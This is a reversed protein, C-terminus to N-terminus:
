ILLDDIPGADRKYLLTDQILVTGLEGHVKLLLEDDKEPLSTLNCQIDSIDFNDSLSVTNLESSQVGEITTEKRRLEISFKLRRVLNKHLVLRCHLTKGDLGINNIKLYLPFLIQANVALNMSRLKLWKHGIDNIGNVIGYSKLEEEIDGVIKIDHRLPMDAKVYCTIPPFKLCEPPGIIYDSEEMFTYQHGKRLEVVQNDVTMKGGIMGNLLNLFSSQAELIDYLIAMRTLQTVGMQFLSKYDYDVDNKLAEESRTSLWISTMGNILTDGDKFAVCRISLSNYCDKLENWVNSPNLNTKLRRQM